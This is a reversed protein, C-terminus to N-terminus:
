FKYKFGLNGTLYTENKEDVKGGLIQKVGLSLNVNFKESVNINGGLLAQGYTKTKSKGAVSFTVDSGLFGATYDTGTNVVYREISPIVYIFSNEGLYQRFDVGVDFSLAHNNTSSVSLASYGSEDYAPTHAYYYNEGIFPMLFTKNENFSFIKGVNASVGAYLRNFSAEAEGAGRTATLDTPSVQGYVKFNVEIDRQNFSGYVGVQINHSDQEIVKDNLSGVVYSAYFGLLTSEFQKDYGLTLGYLAGNEGDISNIGGIFDGWFGNNYGDNAYYLPLPMDSELDAYYGGVYGQAVNGFPNRAAAVRGSVAM